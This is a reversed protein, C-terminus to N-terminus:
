AELNISDGLRAYLKQKLEAVRAAVADSEAQMAAADSRAKALAAEARAEAEDTPCHYFCEGVLFRVSPGVDDADALALESAADDAGDVNAQAAKLSAAVEKSRQFLRNFENIAAQDAATVEVASQPHFPTSPNPPPFARRKWFFRGRRQPGFRPRLSSAPVSVPKRSVM